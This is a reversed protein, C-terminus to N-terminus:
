RTCRSSASKMSSSSDMSSLDEDHDDSLVQLHLAKTDSRGDVPVGRFVAATLLEDGPSDPTKDFQKRAVISRPSAPSAQASTVM